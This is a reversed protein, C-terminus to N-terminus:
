EKESKQSGEFSTDVLLQRLAPDAALAAAVAAADVDAAPPPYEAGWVDPDGSSVFVEGRNALPGLLGPQRVQAATIPGGKAVWEPRVRRRTIGDCLWVQDPDAADSFRVLMQTMDDEQTSQAPATGCILARLQDVTGRFANGDASPQRGITLRSGYQLFVPTRGSYTRWRSSSDGPYAAQLAVAPNTGYDSAWLPDAGGITDGYAWRPAYLVVWRGTRERLLRAMEVGQSPAVADYSWKELDVQFFFGPWTRWWPVQRDLEALAFDVQPAVPGSRVVVYVGLFEIGADRARALAEGCHRHRISTAESVKHTFFAVGAAKAAALDMPGRDWDFDSADWGFVTM